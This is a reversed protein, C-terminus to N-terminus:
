GFGLINAAQKHEDANLYIWGSLNSYDNFDVDLLDYGEIGLIPDMQAHMTQHQYLWVGPENADFPDLVYQDLNKGVLEFIRRAIDRHHAAHAFSWALLEDQTTPTNYLSAISSM